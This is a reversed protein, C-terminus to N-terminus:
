QPSGSNSPAANKPGTGAVTGPTPKDTKSAGESSTLGTAVPASPGLTPAGNIPATQFAGKTVTLPGGEGSVPTTGPKALTGGKAAIWKAFDGRSVAQVVIPMFGHRAGCLESCQGYYVGPKDVTFSLENVRGPVADLKMWFAPMAFSHIVDNSTTLLRVPVGVPVVMRNDVGLLRPEGRKLAEGDPLMNSVVEFGGNDPYEYTWYWQNGIAKVTVANRGAPKFQAALLSISPFVIVLLVLIPVLTWLVEIVTNHSFKAPIPNAKRRYRFMCWLLLGLVFLSIVVIIPVLLVDHFWAAQLGVPSVQPQLGIGFPVPHGIVPDPAMTMIGPTPSGSAAKAASAIAPAGAAPNGTVAPAGQAWAPAVLATAVLALTTKLLTKLPTM